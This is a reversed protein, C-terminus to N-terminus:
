STAADRLAAWVRAPTMPLDLRRVGRSALADLVANVASPLSGAVGSEGAGKVGLPNTTCPVGHHGVRLDPMDDARPIMYDMFSATLLQGREDYVVGEGLVQGLGQAVGGHIQGAVITPHVVNGVDDVAAYGVVTVVGTVPEIEVECVHCGNPFSMQPSVFRATGDLGGALDEPLGPMARARRALDVIGIARDTGAVQFRGNAFEVDFVAAEFLRAALRRGKEIAADCALLAASGAMMMSRSAVSPTGAPVADSDGEVLRVARVDVGLRQAVLPPFTSLHGQGMAQVGTRLAVTGDDEFRLDVTEDLIGGAVELFCGLGIGRLRGARESAARRAPFGQWDALALAEDLAAEFEGSDYVQGNPARYPMASPPILNRRRLEVRDIGMAAAAADILREVLYLAEPRGAGRYPGLPAANTLVMKVDIQIAPLVYVSSLCNKTNSTAFIAAYTSVYAGIGVFTRARLALFKGRADLALEGELVGDRGHTDALFSEVRTACWKVPRGTRRAAYLLAAYEPYAQVKMGFGGGVDHTLVRITSPPVKFVGEALLRRVVAVGQTSAILTYRGAAADWQGIAARPELASPALRTDLLRVREVHAARAFAAEVAAADGDTWDLAINGPAQPWIAPAGPAMAREVDAVAPREALEAVVADAADRAQAATEAVVIALPEGVYRVRDLALPPMAAAVMPTGGRGALSAVPPIAGLGDAALDRGTFVGVVGPKRMAGTVDIGRIEAHGVTSRVFAAHAQGAVGLDDTFRGRGTLLPADESRRAGRDSGFRM